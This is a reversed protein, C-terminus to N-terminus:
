RRARSMGGTIAILTGAFFVWFATAAAMNAAAAPTGPEDTALGYFAIGSAMVILGIGVLFKSM